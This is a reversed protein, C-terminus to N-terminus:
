FGLRTSQEGLGRMKEGGKGREKSKEKEGEKGEKGESGGEVGNKM